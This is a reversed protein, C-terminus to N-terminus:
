QSRRALLEKGINFSLRNLLVEADKMAHDLSISGNLIAYTKEIGLHKLESPDISTSGCVAFLRKDHKKALSAIGSIVKGYLSPKDIKGEGTIVVDCNRIHNEASALQMVFEIGSVLQANLFAICGAGMGGAAGGGEIGSVDIGLDNKIVSAFHIMGQELEDVMLPDAGKQPAFIKTAGNGGYLVNKVDCAVKFHINSLDERIDRKIKEIHALNKGVPLLQNGDSDLFRYSLAAAMGIGCDNTASGGIGIIINEVGYEIASKILQGTGYSSTQLPNYENPKLLQLGSAKAMEIFATKGNSSLLWQAHVIRGLPDQVKSTMRQASIYHAIVDSLGDGGDSMPLKVIDFSASAKALGKEIANCVEFSTLSGKFKDPAIVIKM